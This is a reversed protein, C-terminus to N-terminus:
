TVSRESTKADAMIRNFEEIEVVESEDMLMIPLGDRIPYKRRTAPDTSYLWDGVLVLPKKSLPCVLLRLFEADLTRM